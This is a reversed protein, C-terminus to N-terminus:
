KSLIVFQGRRKYVDYEITKKNTKKKWFLTWNVVAIGNKLDFREMSVKEGTHSDIYSIDYAVFSHSVNKFISGKANKNVSTVQGCFLTRTTLKRTNFRAGSWESTGTRSYDRCDQVADLASKSSTKGFQPDDTFRFQLDGGLDYSRRLISKAEGPTESELLDRVKSGSKNKIADILTRHGDRAIVKGQEKTINGIAGYLTFALTSVIGIAVLTGIMGMGAESQNNTPSTIWM